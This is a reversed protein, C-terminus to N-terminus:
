STVLDIPIERAILGNHADFARRGHERDIAACRGSRGTLPSLAFGFHPKEHQDCVCKATRLGAKRPLAIVRLPLKSESLRM